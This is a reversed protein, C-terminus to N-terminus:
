YKRRRYDVDVWDEGRHHVWLEIGFAIVCCIALGGCYVPIAFQGIYVYLVLFGILNGIILDKTM